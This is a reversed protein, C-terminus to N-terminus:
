HEISNVQEENELIQRHHLFQLLELRTEVPIDDRYCRHKSILDHKQKEKSQFHIDVVDM